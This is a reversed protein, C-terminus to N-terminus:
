LLHILRGQCGTYNNGSTGYASGEQVYWRITDGAVLEIQYTFQGWNYNSYGPLRLAVAGSGSGNMDANNKRLNFRNSGSDNGITWMSFEYFGDVPATFTGSAPTYDNGPDYNVSNFNIYNGATVHGATRIAQYRVDEPARIATIEAETDTVRTGLTTLAAGNETSAAEARTMRSRLKQIQDELAKFAM